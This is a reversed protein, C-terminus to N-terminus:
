LNKISLLKYLGLTYRYLRLQVFQSDNGNESIEIEVKHIISIPTFSLLIPPYFLHFLTAFGARIM